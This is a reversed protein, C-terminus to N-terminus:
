RGVLYGVVGSVFLGAGSYIVWLPLELPIDLHTTIGMIRSLGGPLMLIEDNFFTLINELGLFYVSAGGALYVLGQLILVKGFAQFGNHKVKFELWIRVYIWGALVVWLTFFLTRFWESIWFSLWFSHPGRIALMIMPILFFLLSLFAIPWLRQAYSIRHYPLLIRLCLLYFLFIGFIWATFIPALFATFIGLALVTWLLLGRWIMGWSRQMSREQPALMGALLTRGDPTRLFRLIWLILVSLWAVAFWSTLKAREMIRLGHTAEEFQYAPFDLNKAYMKQHQKVNWRYAYLSKRWLFYSESSGTEVWSYYHLFASRFAGLTKFLQKQYRISELIKGFEEKNKTVLSEVKELSQLMAATEQIAEESELVASKIRGRSVHYVAGLAASAGGVIDWEFIWLMPPPELGLAKVYWKSYTGIYLGKKLTSHSNLLVDSLTEILKKNKGYRNAVWTQTLTDLNTNPNQALRTLAYVNVDTFANFGHFPYTSLPGARLPGGEQSWLWMGKINPNKNKLQVLAQQHTPALYNPLSGLGEFERRSQFEVIRQHKGSYLTRNFPLWSYYDGNCYKTSVILNKSNQKALVREYTEPNTHMDGISGVGVSWTRFIIKKNFREAVELFNKLMLDVSKEDKVYLESFYDWGPKNYVSGAEGIRIMLGEVNPMEQFVETLGAQYVKWFDEKAVDVKGFKSIFFQELPKTLTVMDTYLYTKLGNQKAIESLENFTNRLAIHRNVYTSNSPYITEELNSFTVFELFLPLVLGNMGTEGMKKTYLATEDKIREFANQNIHPAKNLLLDEFRHVNHEYNNGWNATDPLIGVGGFDVLRLTLSDSKIDPIEIPKEIEKETFSIKLFGNIQFSIWTGLGFLSLFLIYPLFRFLM